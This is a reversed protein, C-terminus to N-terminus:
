SRTTSPSSGGSPGPAGGATPATRASAAAIGERVGFQSLLSDIIPPTDLTDLMALDTRAAAYQGLRYFVIARFARADPYTPDAAVAADLDAAAQQQLQPTGTRVLLWGRYTLAEANGPSRTLVESYCKVAELLPASASSATAGSGERMAASALELCGALEQRTSARIDGTLGGVSTRTGALRAVLLGAGVAFLLVAAGVLWRGPGRRIAAGRSRLSQQDEISRLVAATRVVYDDRLTAHDEPSLDGAALEEDLDRLSRALFDREEELEALEDPDLRARRASAARAANAGRGSQDPGSQDPGSQDPGSPSLPAALTATGGPGAPAGSGAPEESPTPQQPSDPQEATM